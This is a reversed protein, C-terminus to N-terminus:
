NCVPIAIQNYTWPLLPSIEGARPTLDAAEETEAAPQGAKAEPADAPVEAPAETIGKQARFEALIVEPAPTCMEQIHEM